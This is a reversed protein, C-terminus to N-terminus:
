RKAVGWHGHIAELATNHQQSAMSNLSGATWDDVTLRVALEGHSMDIRRPVLVGDLLQYAAYDLHWLRQDLRILADGPGIRTEAAHSPDPLGLLWARLSDVPMWWGLLESLDIEPDELVRREGRATVIMERPSGTVEIGGAGLLGRVLLTSIDDDQFWSFRAQFAREGTDVALRGRMSWAPIAELRTRREDFRLGDHEATPQPACGAALLAAAAVMAARIM